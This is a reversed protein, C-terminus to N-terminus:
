RGMAQATKEVAKAAATQIQKKADQDQLHDALEHIATQIQIQEVPRRGWSPDEGIGLRWLQGTVLWMLRTADSPALNKNKVEAM